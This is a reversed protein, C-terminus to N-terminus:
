CTPTPAQGTRCRTGKAVRLWWFRAGVWATCSLRGPARGVCSGRRSRWSGKCAAARRRLIRGSRMLRRLPATSVNLGDTLARIRMCLRVLIAAPLDAHASARTSGPRMGVSSGPLRATTLGQVSERGLLATRHSKRSHLPPQVTPMHGPRAAHMCSTPWSWSAIQSPTPAQTAAHVQLAAAGMAAAEWRLAEQSACSGHQQGEQPATNRSGLCEWGSGDHQQMGGTQGPVHWAVPPEQEQWSSLEDATRFSRLRQLGETKCTLPRPGCLEGAQEAIVQDLAGDAESYELWEASVQKGPSSTACCTIIHCLM